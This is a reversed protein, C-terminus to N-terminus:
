MKTFYYEIFTLPDKKNIYIYFKVKCYQWQGSPIM